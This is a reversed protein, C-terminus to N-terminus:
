MGLSAQFKGLLQSPGEITIGGVECGRLASIMPMLAQNVMIMKNERKFVYDNEEQGGKKLGLVHKLGKFATEQFNLLTHSVFLFLGLLHM